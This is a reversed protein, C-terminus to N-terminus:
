PPVAIFNVTGSKDAIVSRETKSAENILVAKAGPILAGTPDTVTGTLTAQGAQAWTAPASFLLLATFAVSLSVSRRVM